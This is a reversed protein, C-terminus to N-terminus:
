YVCFGLTLYSSHFQLLFTPALLTLTAILTCQFRFYEFAYSWLLRQKRTSLACETCVDTYVYMFRLMLIYFCM